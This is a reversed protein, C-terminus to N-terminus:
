FIKDIVEMLYSSDVRDPDKEKLMDILQTFYATDVGILQDELVKMDTLDLKSIDWSIKLLQGATINWGRKLFKRVRAMACIPYKSQGVYRLDKALIAELAAPPLHLTRDKSDWWCTCHQFDYNKHIEEPEGCFRFVVQIKGSLTICNSSLFTPQYDAKEKKIDAAVQEVFAVQEEDTQNQEFYEYDDSGSAGAIGSSKIVIKIEDKSDVRIEVDKGSGKFSQPPNKKFKDVYYRALKLATDKDRLYVDFDNVPENTLMSVICGGTVIVNKKAQERLASDDITDLWADVKRGIAIRIWKAKV